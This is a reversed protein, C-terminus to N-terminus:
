CLFRVELKEIEIESELDILEPISYYEAGRKMLTKIEETIQHAEEGTDRYGLLYKRKNTFGFIRWGWLEGDHFHPEYEVKTVNYCRDGDQNRIKM